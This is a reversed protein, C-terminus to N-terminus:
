CLRFIAELMICLALCVFENNSRSGLFEPPFFNIASSPLFLLFQCFVFILVKKMVQLFSHVDGINRCSLVRTKPGLVLDLLSAVTLLDELLM